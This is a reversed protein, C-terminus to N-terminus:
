GIVFQINGGVGPGGFCTYGPGAESDDKKRADAAKNAPVEFLIVHHVISPNGPLVDGATMYRDETLKPDVIFCRYDDTLKTNPMYTLGMDAVVDPRAKAVTEAPTPKARPAANKDGELAGDAIWDLLAAKDNAPMARSYRLPVSADSPLWPPMSGSEVAGRILSAYRQTSEYTTLSFPAVGGDSHCTTCYRSFVASTDHYYDVTPQSPAGDGCGAALMSLSLAFPLTRPLSARM